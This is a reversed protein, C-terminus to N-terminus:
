IVARIREQFDTIHERIAAEAARGDRRRIAELVARHQEIAAHMPGIRDLALYWLRLNLNFLRNATSQLFRNHASHALAAHFARDIEIHAQTDELSHVEDLAAVIRDLTCLDAERAREAALAAAFGEVTRRLEFLQQLDTVGINAVFAGRRRRIVVLGEYALRQLAERVPTRGLGVEQMLEAEQLPAGPLLKLTIIQDRLRQYAQRSLSPPSDEGEDLDLAQLVNPALTNM